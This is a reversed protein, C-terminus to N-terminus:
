GQPQGGQPQQEPRPPRAVNLRLALMVTLEQAKGPDMAAMVAGIKAPKMRSAVTLLVQRDLKNFIRAADTPKMNEYTKVLATLQAEEAEDRKALMANLREELAKLEGLREELHKETVSVLQERMALDREREELATRRASLNQLVEAEGKTQAQAVAPAASAKEIQPEVPVAAGHDQKTESVGSHDEGAPQAGEEHASAETAPAEAAEEPSAASALAGLRLTLLVGATGILVPLLRVRSNM